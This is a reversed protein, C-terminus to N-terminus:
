ACAEAVTREMPAAPAASQSVILTGCGENTFVEALLADRTNGNVIHARAVGARLAAVCASLKPLMGGRIVGRAVLAEVQEVDLHSHLTSRDAVDDMVGDVSTVSFYKAAGVAGALAAAVTDANVNLVQGADDSALSCVLPVHGGGMLQELVAPRVSVVDGVLGYDVMRVRGDGGPESVPTPPRRRAVILGADIGSLGVASVGARRCAALLDCHVSGALTMKAAELMEASTVRRGAVMQTPLGLREALATTQEGGGHVVVLRIGLQDLLALQDILNDLAAGPRCVQGGLKIVFVRGKYARIYPVATRLSQLNPRVDM